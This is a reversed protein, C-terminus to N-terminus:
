SVLKPDSNELCSQLSFHSPICSPVRKTEWAQFWSVQEWSSSEKTRWLFRNMCRAKGAPSLPMRPYRHTPRVPPGRRTCSQASWNSSGKKGKLYTIEKVHTFSCVYTYFSQLCICCMWSLQQPTHFMDLMIWVWLRHLTWPLKLDCM